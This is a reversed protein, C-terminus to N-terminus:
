VLFKATAQQLNSALSELQRAADAIDEVAQSNRRSLQAIQEVNEAVAGSAQRQEALTSSIAGVAVIVDASGQRMDAMSRAAEGAKEVGAGVRKTGTDMGDVARATLAEVGKIMDTIEQTSQTTREALKRVEDAVVAFGRGQEGARAAEIAANLALLNTQDAIERIASVIAFIQKSDDGLQQVSSAAQQVTAAIQEMERAADLVIREGESSLSGSRAAISEADMASASIQGIRQTIQEVAQTTNSAAQAQEASSAAVGRSAAALQQASMLLADAGRRVQGVADRISTQMRLMSAMLSDADGPLTQVQFALDGEAIRRAIAAAEAPEGGLQRLLSRIIAYSVALSLGGGLAILIGFVRLTGGYLDDSQAMTEAAVSRAHNEIKQLLAETKALPGTEIGAVLDDVAHGALHNSPDFTALAKRYKEGIARHTALLDRVEDTAMRQADMLEAGKALFAQVQKEEREFDAVHRNFTAKDHGRLLINKWGIMQSHLHTQAHELAVLIEMQRGETELASRLGGHLYHLGFFGAGGLALLSGLSLAALLWLRSSTKALM